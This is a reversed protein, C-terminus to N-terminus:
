RAQWLERAEVKAMDHAVRHCSLCALGGSTLQEMVPVHAPQERFRRADDHCHLCNASAYPRYLALKAPVGTVYHAWVHRLGNLKARADGFLAYDKHCSYCVTDRDILRNQYHTAALARKDDVFLSQGHRQMEHCSLCFRTQSSEHFGFTLNGVSLLVPLVVVGVLLALRGAHAKALTPGGFYCLALVLLGVALAIVIPIPLVAPKRAAEKHLRRAAALRRSVAATAPPDRVSHAASPPGVCTKRAQKM